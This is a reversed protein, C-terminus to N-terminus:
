APAPVPRDVEIYRFRNGSQEVIEDLYNSNMVFMASGPALRQSAAQPSLVELGTVPVYRGQKAPNIDVMAEFAVGRRALRQAFIVGKSSAGWIAPRMCAENAAIRTCHEIGADFDDPLRAREFPLAPQRRLSALEAVVYLYQGGFVHGSEHVRAFMREFDGLRFYNVHEYFIDFWARHEVIWDFCPVEIYIRGRGGNTAAIGALFAVPDQMHELVHRLVIGDASLAIGPEFARKLVHPDDGDYAPDIGTAAYGAARLRKLFTGKGCGVEILTCGAFHRDVIGLVDDLHRMFAASHAQENQYSADYVLRSPDFAANRVLGTADDQVLVVDGVPTRLAEDRTAYVRNQLMPLGEIRLLEAAV